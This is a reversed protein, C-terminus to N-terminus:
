SLLWIQVARIGSLGHVFRAEIGQQHSVLGVAACLLNRVEKESKLNENGDDEYTTIHSHWLKSLNRM